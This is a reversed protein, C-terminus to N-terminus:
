LQVDKNEKKSFYADRTMSYSNIDYLVGNSARFANKVIGDFNFGCKEIVRRSRENGNHYGVSLLETETNEFTNKTLAALAESMYGNGWFDKSLEYAVSLSNVKKQDHLEDSQYNISGIVKGSEKLVVAYASKNQLYNAFKLFGEARDRVPSVGAPLMVEEDSMIKYFEDFDDTQWPRLFLREAKIEARYETGKPLIFKVAGHKVKFVERKVLNCEGDRNAVASNKSYIEMEYGRSFSLYDNFKPHALHNGRKYVGVMSPIKYFPPKKILIFDLLGDNCVAVPAGKYGGGYFQGNAALAFIYNGEFTKEGETTKLKIKLQEGLQGFLCKVLSLEYALSGSVGPIHKFKDMNYAVAADLGLSCINLADGELTGIADVALANGDLQAAIDLFDSADGFQRIYDNGSGLPFVGIEANEKGILARAVELLTGDGGVAYFRTKENPSYEREAIEKAHGGYETFYIKFDLNRRKAEEEIRGVFKRAAGKGGANPNVIFIYKM